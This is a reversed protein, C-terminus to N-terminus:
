RGLDKMAIPVDHKDSVAGHEDLTFRIATAEENTTLLPVIGTFITDGRKGDKLRLYVTVRAPIPGPCAYIRWLQVNVVWDGPVAVRAYFFEINVGSLDNHDGLDDRLLDGVLGNKRRFGVPEDGPAKVWLDVDTDCDAPWTLEAAVAGPSKTEETRTPPNIHPLLVLVIAVFGALALFIVDRFVVDDEATEENM